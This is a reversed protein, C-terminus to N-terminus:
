GVNPLIGMWRLVTQIMEIWQVILPLLITVITVSARWRSSFWWETLDKLYNTPEPNDLQHIYTATSQQVDVSQNDAWEVWGM